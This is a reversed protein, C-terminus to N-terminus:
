KKKLWKTRKMWLPHTTHKRVTPPTALDDSIGFFNNQGDAGPVLALCAALVLLLAAGAATAIGGWVRARRGDEVKVTMM